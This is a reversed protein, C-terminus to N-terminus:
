ASKNVGGGLTCLAASASGRVCIVCPIVRVRVRSRLLARALAARRCTLGACDACAVCKIHMRWTYPITYM